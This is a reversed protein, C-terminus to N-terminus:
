IFRSSDRIYNHVHAFILKNLFELLAENGWLLFHSDIINIEDVKLLEYFFSSKKNSKVISM